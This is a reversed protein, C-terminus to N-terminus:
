GTAPSLNAMRMLNYAAGVLVTFLNNREVGRFRSKRLGGVTKMWGFIEEVRKRVRQSIQYGIHRTTRADLGPTNRGEQMAIHPRINRDRLAAVFKKNHYGKDGALTKPRVRKRAQRKLMEESAQSETKGVSATVKIDVLLGNRNEMLAHGTFSLKAEKGPGKKCLKSEPDTASEHTDNSRKEGHFNVTPNGPDDPPPQQDKSEDKRRFSKLSAYAEILTGDVTFHDDSLLNEGRAKRVVADFFRQAVDHELLRDRNKSFTTADFSAEDMSMDLFWRFLLNYDLTECFLRESRVSYLAILICSKLLREPPISPRGLGSYMADFVPSLEHLCEDSFQKIRRLPHTAPVRHEPSVYSFLHSQDDKRGRV